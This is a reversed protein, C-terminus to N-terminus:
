MGGMYPLYGWHWGFIKRSFQLTIWLNAGDGGLSERVAECRFFWFFWISNFSFITRLFFFRVNKSSNLFPIRSLHGRRSTATLVWKWWSSLSLLGTSIIGGVQVGSQYLHTWEMPIRLECSPITSSSIHRVSWFTVCINIRLLVWIGIKREYHSSLPIGDSNTIDIWLPSLLM